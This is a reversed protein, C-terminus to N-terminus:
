FCPNQHYLGKNYLTRGRRLITWPDKPFFVLLDVVQLDSSSSRCITDLVRSAPRFPKSFGFSRMAYRPFVLSESRSSLVIMNGLQDSLPEKQVQFWGFWVLGFWVLGVLQFFVCGDPHRQVADSHNSTNEEEPHRWSSAVPQSM